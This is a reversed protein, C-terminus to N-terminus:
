LPQMGSIRLPRSQMPPLLVPEPFVTANATGISCFHASSGMPMKARTMVGVLNTAVKRISENQLQCTWGSFEGELDVFLEAGDGGGLGELHDEDGAAGVHAGLGDGEGLAGVDDDGCGATKCVVDARGARVGGDAEGAHTEDDEVFGVAEEGGSMAAHKGVHFGAERGEWRGPLPM